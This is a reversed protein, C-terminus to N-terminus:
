FLISTDLISKDGATSLIIERTKPRNPNSKNQNQLKKDSTEMYITSPKYQGLAHETPLTYTAQSANTHKTFTFSICKATKQETKHTYLGVKLYM